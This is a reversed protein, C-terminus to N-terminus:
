ITIEVNLKDFEVKPRTKKREDHHKELSVLGLEVLVKLDTNVSKLDRKVIKALAYISDPEHKKIARLLEIRKETFFKRYETPTLFSVEHHPTIKGTREAKEWAEGFERFITARDKITIKVNKVRM